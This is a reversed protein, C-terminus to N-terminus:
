IATDAPDPSELAFDCLVGLHDSVFDLDHTGDFALTCTIPKLNPTAFVFDIRIGPQYGSGVYPNRSTFTVGPDNPQCAAYADRFGHKSQLIAQIAPSNVQDNFDGALIIAGVDGQAAFRDIADLAKRMQIAREDAFAAPFALHTTAVIVRHRGIALQAMFIQRPVDGPFYPLAVAQQRLAPYISLISLGEMNRPLEARKPENEGLGSFLHHGLGCPVAFLESHIRQTTPHRSVEQLCVIDPRLRGLGSVLLCDRQDLAHGVDWLNLTLVKIRTM